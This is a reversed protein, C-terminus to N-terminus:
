HKYILKGRFYFIQLTKLNEQFAQAKPNLILFTGVSTPAAYKVMQQAEKRSIHKKNM